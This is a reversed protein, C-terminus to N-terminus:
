ADGPHISTLALAAAQKVIAASTEKNDIGVIKIEPLPGDCVAPLVRLLYPLGARHSFEADALAAVQDSSLVMTGKGFGAISDVFVVSKAGEVFRILDLGGLGGDVIEIDGDLTMKSLRSFVKFGASDEPVHRNGICIIRRM